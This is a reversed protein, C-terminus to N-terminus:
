PWLDRFPKQRNIEFDSLISESYEQGSLVIASLSVLTDGAAKKANIGLVRM